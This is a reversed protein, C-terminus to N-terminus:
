SFSRRKRSCNMPHSDREAPERLEDVHRGGRRLERVVQGGGAEGDVRDLGDPALRDELEVDRRVADVAHVDVADRALHCREVAQRQPREVRAHRLGARRGCSASSTTMSAGPGRRATRRACGRRACPGTTRGPQAVPELLHADPRDVVDDVQRVVHHDLRALRAVREVEGAHRARLQHHAPRPFALRDRREVADSRFSGARTPTMAPRPPSGASARAPTMPPADLSIESSVRTTASSAAHHSGSATRRPARASAMCVSAECRKSRPASTAAPGPAIARSACRSCFTPPPVTRGPRTSRVPWPRPGRLRRRLGSFTFARRPAVIGTSRCVDIRRASPKPTSSFPLSAITATGLQRRSTAPSASRASSTPRCKPTWRTGAAIGGDTRGPRSRGDCCRSRRIRSIRVPMPAVSTM